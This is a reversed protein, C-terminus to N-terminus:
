RGREVPEVEIEKAGAPVDATTQRGNPWRVQIQTPPEAAGL